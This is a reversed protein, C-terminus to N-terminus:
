SPKGKPQNTMHPPKNQFQFSIPSSEKADEPSRIPKINRAVVKMEEVVNRQVMVIALMSNLDTAFQEFGRNARILLERSILTWDGRYNYDAGVYAGQSFYGFSDLFYPRVHTPDEWANDSSGYPLKFMAIAGPCCVRALEQMFSLPDVVHELVHSCYVSSFTDTQFPWPRKTFDFIVDPLVDPSIDANVSDLFGSRGCGINLRTVRKLQDDRVVEYGLCKLGGEGEKM